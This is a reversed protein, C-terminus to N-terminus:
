THKYTYDYAMEDHTMQTLNKKEFNEPIRQLM